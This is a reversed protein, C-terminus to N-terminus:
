FFDLDTANIFSTNARADLKAEMELNAKVLMARGLHGHIAFKSTTQAQIISPFILTLLLM